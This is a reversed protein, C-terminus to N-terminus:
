CKLIRKGPLGSDVWGEWRSGGRTGRTFPPQQCRSAGKLAKVCWVGRLCHKTRVNPKGVSVPTSARAPRHHFIYNFEQRFKIIKEWSARKGETAKAHYPTANNRDCRLRFIHECKGVRKRHTQAMHTKLFAASLLFFGSSRTIIHIAEHVAETPLRTATHGVEPRPDKTKHGALLHHRSVNRPGNGKGRRFSCCPLFPWSTANKNRRSM